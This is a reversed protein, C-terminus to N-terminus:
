AAGGHTRVRHEEFSVMELIANNLHFTRWSLSQGPSAFTQGFGDPDDKLNIAGDQTDMWAEALRAFTFPAVHDVEGMRGNRFALVQPMVTKRMAQRVMARQNISSLCHKFAFRVVDGDDTLVALSGASNAFMGPAVVIRVLGRSTLDGVYEHRALLARLNEQDPAGLDRQERCWAAAAIKTPFDLNGISIAAM